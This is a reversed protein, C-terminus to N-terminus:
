WRADFAMECMIYTKNIITTNHPHSVMEIYSRYMVIYMLLHIALFPNLSHLNNIEYDVYYVYM